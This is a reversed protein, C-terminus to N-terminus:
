RREGRGESSPTPAPGTDEPLSLWWRGLPTDQIDRHITAIEEEPSLGRILARIRLQAAAKMALCDIPGDDTPNM